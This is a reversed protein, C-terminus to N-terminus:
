QGLCSALCRESEYDTKTRALAENSAGKLGMKTSWFNDEFTKHAAEYQVFHRDLSISLLVPICYVLASGRCACIVLLVVRRTCVKKNFDEIVSTVEPPGPLVAAMTGTGISRHRGFKSSHLVRRFSSKVLLPTGANLRGQLFATRMLCSRM